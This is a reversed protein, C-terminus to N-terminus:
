RGTTFLEFKSAEGGRRPAQDPELVRVQDEEHIVVLQRHPHKRFSSEGMTASLQAGDKLVFLPQKPRRTNAYIFAGAIETAGGFAELTTNDGETKLGLMWVTAGRNIIKTQYSSEPNIQRAWVHQGPAFHFPTGSVDEIFLDGTGTSVLGGVLNGRRLRCSSVVLTRDTEHRIVIPAYQVEIREFVVVPQDGDVVRIAGKGKIAAECGVFRRVNGRILLDGKVHWTGNPLYVTTKGSDIAAQIAATDDEGDDPKGDFQLPSVWQELDDWPVEPTPKVPLRLATPQDVKGLTVPERSTFAEVYPGQADREHGSENRIAQTRNAAKLGRVYMVGHNVIAPGDGQEASGGVDAGILSVVGDGKRNLLSVHSGDTKFNEISLVQNDNLLGTRRYGSLDINVLTISNVHGWTYIGHDFGKVRLNKILCPGQESTYGLDLGVVGQGRILVDRVCGQNNAVFQLGTAGRNDGTDITLNRVANRFRQAPHRGTWIVPKGTPRGYSDDEGPEEFGAAGDQLRIITGARSQGQLITRKCDDGDDKGGWPWNLTDSVLYEGDPLYIIRNGSPHDDLAKQIAATDDTKGDAKANYPAKTVDVVGADDPFVVSSAAMCGTALSLSIAMSLCLPRIM